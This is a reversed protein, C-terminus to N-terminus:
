QEQTMVEAKAILWRGNQRVQRVRYSGAASTNFGLIKIGEIRYTGRVIATEPDPRSVEDVTNTLTTAKLAGARKESITKKIEDRSHIQSGSPIILTGDSVFLGAIDEADGQNWKRVLDKVTRDPPPEAPEPAKSVSTAELAPEAEIANPESHSAVTQESETATGKRLFRAAFFVTLALISILVFVFTTKKSAFPLKVSKVSLLTWAVMEYRALARRSETDQGLM